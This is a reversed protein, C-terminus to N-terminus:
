LRFYYIIASNKANYKQKKNKQFRLIVFDKENQLLVLLPLRVM